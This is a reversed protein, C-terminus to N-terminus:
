NRRLLSKTLIHIIKEYCIGQSPKMHFIERLFEKLRKPKGNYFAQELESNLSDQSLILADFDNHKGTM